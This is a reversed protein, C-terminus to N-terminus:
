TDRLTERDANVVEWVRECLSVMVQLMSPYKKSYPQLPHLELQQMM